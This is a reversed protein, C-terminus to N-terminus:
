KEGEMKERYSEFVENADENLYVRKWFERIKFIGKICGRVMISVSEGSPLSDYCLTSAKCGILGDDDTSYTYNWISTTNNIKVLLKEVNANYERNYSDTDFAEVKYFDDWIFVCILVKAGKYEGKAMILQKEIKLEYGLKKIENIIVNQLILGKEGM